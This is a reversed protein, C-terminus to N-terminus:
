VRNLKFTKQMVMLNYYRDIYVLELPNIYGDQTVVNQKLDLQFTQSTDKKMVTETYKKIYKKSRVITYNLKKYVSNDYPIYEMTSLAKDAGSAFKGIKVFQKYYTLEQENLVVGFGRKRIKLNILIPDRISAFYKYDINMMTMAATFCSPTMHATKGDWFSRVIPLHFQSVCAMINVYISFIELPARIHPSSIKFKINSNIKFDDNVLDAKSTTRNDDSVYEENHAYYFRINNKSVTEFFSSYKLDTIKDKDEYNCIFDIYKDMYFGYFMEFLKTNEKDKNDLFNKVAEFEEKPFYAEIFNGSVYVNVTKTYTMNILNDTNEPEKFKIINNSVTDYIVHVKECFDVGTLDCAIDVDSDGYYTEIYRSFYDEMDTGTESCFNFILPNVNPLCCCMISGCIGINNWDIGDLLDYGDYGEIFKNIRTKLIDSSCVGIRYDTKIHNAGIMNNGINSVKENVLLPAYASTTFYPSEPFYMASECTFIFRDDITMFRKKIGEELYMTLWAYGMLYMFPSYCSKLFNIDSLYKMITESKLIIHCMDKSAFVNMIFYYLEKDSRINTAIDMFMEEDFSQKEIEYPIRYLKVGKKEISNAADVYKVDSIMEALYDEDVEGLIEKIIAKSKEAMQRANMRFKRQIFPLTINLFCNKSCTWYLNPSCSKLLRIREERMEENEYTYNVLLSVAFSNIYKNIDQEEKAIMLLSDLSHANLERLDLVLKHEPYPDDDFKKNLDEDLGFVKKLVDKSVISLNTKYSSSSLIFISCKRLMLISNTDSHCLVYLHQFNKMLDKMSLNKINRDRSPTYALSILAQNDDFIKQEYAYTNNEYAYTNNEYAHVVKVHETIVKEHDTTMNEHETSM